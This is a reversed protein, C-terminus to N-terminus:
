ASLVVRAHDVDNKLQSILADIGDFKRESRLFNTFEVRAAETY